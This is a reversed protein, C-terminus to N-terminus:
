RLAPAPGRFGFKEMAGGECRGCNQNVHSLLPPAALDSNEDGEAYCKPLKGNVVEEVTVLENADLKKLNDLRSVCARSANLAPAKLSM